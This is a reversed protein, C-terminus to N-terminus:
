PQEVKNADMTVFPDLFQLHTVAAADITELAAEAADMDTTTFAVTITYEYTDSM